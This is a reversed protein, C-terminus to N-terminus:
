ESYTHAPRKFLNPLLKNKIIPMNMTITVAIKRLLTIALIMNMLKYRWKYIVSIITLLVAFTVVIRM